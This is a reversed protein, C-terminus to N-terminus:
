SRCGRARTWDGDNGDGAVVGVDNESAPESIMREFVAESSRSSGPAETRTAGCASSVVVMTVLMPVVRHRAPRFRRDALLTGPSAAV